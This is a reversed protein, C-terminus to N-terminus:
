GFACVSIEGVADMGFPGRETRQASPTPAAAQQEPEWRTRSPWWASAPRGLGGAIATGATHAQEFAQLLTVVAVVEVGVGARIAHVARALRRSTPISENAEPQFLAIIAVLDVSAQGSPASPVQWFARQPSPM